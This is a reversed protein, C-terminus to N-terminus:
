LSFSAHARFVACRMSVCEIEDDDAASDGSEECSQARGGLAINENECVPRQEGGRAHQGLATDRGGDAAVVRGRAM